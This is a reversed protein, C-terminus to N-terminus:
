SMKYPAWSGIQEPSNTWVARPHQPHAIYRNITQDRLVVGGMALAGQPRGLSGNAIMYSIDPQAPKPANM